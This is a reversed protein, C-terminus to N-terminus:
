IVGDSKLRRLTDSSLGLRGQYIAENDDGRRPAVTYDKSEHASLAFAPGLVQIEGEDPHTVTRTVGLAQVQPDEFVHEMDLIPGCPVGAENLRDIWAQTPRCRTKENIAQNLAARHRARSIVSIFREDTKLETLDLVDCLRAFIANGMAAINIHGDQTSFVGTPSSTPHDNGSQGPVEGNILWRIAQFDMMWLQAQLLSTHVWQGRGTRERDLLAVLTGIACFLGATLDAVPIGARMPGRGPEGTVSMLGALGQAIQDLGPRERYPGTQGFGSVSALVIRPNIAALTEYDIKLKQKVDPRYNEIVVDADRVLDYFLALGQPHKLNLSISQKNRHTNQYDAFQASGGPKDDPENSPQEIKIVSAGWDSLQRVAAPGSRVLTLDLVTFRSLPGSSM